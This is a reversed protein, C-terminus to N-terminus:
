AASSKRAKAMVRDLMSRMEGPNDFELRVPLTQTAAVLEELAPEGRMRALDKETTVPQLNRAKAAALLQRADHSSYRHHDSFAHTERVNAGISNLSAFFKAPHGIGAFALVNRGALSAAANKDAVLKAALVPVGGAKALRIVPEAADGEGVRILAHARDIQVDLPARLPGAPFVAANGIGSAADVVVVSLDKELDPNQFGDDLVLVSAEHKLALQAGAARSRGVITPHARALLLPEDGVDSARHKGLDVAIPGQESGGYGRSLFV